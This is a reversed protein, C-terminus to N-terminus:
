SSFISEFRQSFAQATKIFKDSEIFRNWQNRALSPLKAFLRHTNASADSLWYPPDVAHGITFYKTTNMWEAAQEFLLPPLHMLQDTFRPVPNDTVLPLVKSIFTGSTDMKGVWGRGKLIHYAKLVTNKSVGLEGALEISTLLQDRPNLLRNKVAEIIGEVIKNAKNPTNKPFSLKYNQYVHAM